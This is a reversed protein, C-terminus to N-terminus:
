LICTNYQTYKYKTHTHTQACFLVHCFRGLSSLSWCPSKRGGLFVRFFQTKCRQIHTWRSPHSPHKRSTAAHWGLNTSTVGVPSVSACIAHFIYLITCMGVWILKVPSVAFHRCLYHWHLITCSTCLTLVDTHAAAKTTCICFKGPDSM